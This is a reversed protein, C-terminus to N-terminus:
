THVMITRGRVEVHLPDVHGAGILQATAREAATLSELLVSLAVEVDGRPHGEPSEAVAKAWEITRM